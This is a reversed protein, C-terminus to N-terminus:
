QYDSFVVLIVPADEPGKYPLGSLDFKQIFELSILLLNKKSSSSLTLAKTQPSYAIRDFEKDVPIKDTITQQRSSYILVEGRTLIFLLQGDPSQFIDLPDAKLDLEKITRWEVEALTFQPYVVWGVSFCLALMGIVMKRM